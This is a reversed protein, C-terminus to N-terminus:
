LSDLSTWKGAPQQSIETAWLKCPLSQGTQLCSFLNCRKFRSPSHETNGTQTASGHKVVAWHATSMHKNVLQPRGHLRHAVSVMAFPNRSYSGRSLLEQSDCLPYITAFAARSLFLLANDAIFKWWEYILVKFLSYDYLWINMSQKTIHLLCSLSLACTM